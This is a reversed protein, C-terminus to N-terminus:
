QFAENCQSCDLLCENTPLCLAKGTGCDKCVKKTILNLSSTAVLALRYAHILLEVFIVQESMCLYLNVITRLQPFGVCRVTQNRIVNMTLLVFALM